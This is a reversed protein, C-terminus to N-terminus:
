GRPIRGTAALGILIALNVAVGIRAQPWHLASLLLSAGATGATLPYGWALDWWVGTAAVAFAAGALLWLVGMARAGARGLDIRGALITTAPAEGEPEVVGWATLFGVLHAIGHLVLLIAFAFRM